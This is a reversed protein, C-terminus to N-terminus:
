KTDSPKSDRANLKNIRSQLGEAIDSARAVEAFTQATWGEANKLSVDAGEDLLLKVLLINKSRAAMMLPTTKNPSEADIYAHADLLLKVVEIHGETAAYHLPTWGEKNPYAGAALLQIVMDSRGKLAAIMLPTENVGNLVDVDLEKQKLLVTLVDTANEWAAWHLASNHPFQTDLTNPQRDVKLRNEVTSAANKRVATFFQQESLTSISQPLHGSITQANLKQSNVNLTTAIFLFILAKCM